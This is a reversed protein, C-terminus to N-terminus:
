SRDETKLQYTDDYTWTVRTGYVNLPGPADTEHYPVRRDADRGFVYDTSIQVLPCDLRRCAEVIHAVGEANVARCLERESEAQDVATYAAANIVADPRISGLVDLVCRRDTIDLAPRTLAVASEVLQRCLEGGLQGGAGTIAIKM